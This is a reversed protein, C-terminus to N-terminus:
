YKDLIDHPNIDLFVATEGEPFWVIRVNMDVSM